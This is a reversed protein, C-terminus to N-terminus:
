KALFMTGYYTETLTINGFTISSNYFDGTIYSNGDLDVALGLVDDVLIKGAKFTWLLNGDTDFKALFIDWGVDYDNGTPTSTLVVKNGIYMQGSFNGAIYVNKDRDTGIGSIHISGTAYVNTSVYISNAWLWTQANLQVTIFFFFVIIYAKTQFLNM